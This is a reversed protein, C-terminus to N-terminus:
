RALLRILVVHMVLGERGRFRAGCECRWPRVKGNDSVAWEAGMREVRVPAPEFSARMHGPVSGIVTFLTPRM